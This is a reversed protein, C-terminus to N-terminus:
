ETGPSTAVPLRCVNKEHVEVSVAVICTPTSIKPGPPPAGKLSAAAVDTLRGGPCVLISAVDVATAKGTLEFTPPVRLVPEARMRAVDFFSAHVANTTSGALSGGATAQCSVIM